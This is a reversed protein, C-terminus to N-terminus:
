SHSGGGESKYRLEEVLQVVAYGVSKATFFFFLLVCNLGVPAAPVLLERVRFGTCHCCLFRRALGCHFLLLHPAASKVVAIVGPTFDRISGFVGM